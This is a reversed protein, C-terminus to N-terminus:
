FHKAYSKRKYPSDPADRQLMWCFDALMSPSWKGKYRKEMLAVDQHFREGAEDSVNGLNAPFFDMHSKLFHMKLSMRCGLAEYTRLLREVHDTYNDSRHNGLFQTCVSRFAKWAALQPATMTEEFNDDNLLERIQPGVFIGEKIKAESVQPFKQILYKFADTERGLAKVLQKMLGLKIHLPPLLVNEKDVLPVNSINNTGPNHFDRLPWDKRSYHEDRSRSDWLCLFCCFKTYGSQLGTLLAIVKFDACIAWKYQDYNICRLIQKLNQYTERMTVSYAVPVSPFTNGNHLLVAKISLKSADIFLRWEQSDFVIGFSDFLSSIDNCYCLDGNMSFLHTLHATRKRFFTVTADSDILNWGQLRSALLEGQFKTLKLDRVLDSLEEASILHPSSSTDTFDFSTDGDDCNQDDSNEPSSNPPSTPPAPVPLEPSHLIPRIASQLSPYPLRKRNRDSVGKVSFACFYCDSGHDRQERWIMPIAFPLGRGSKSWTYLGASCRVCSIHPAWTKEQDGVACGFYSKYLEKLRPTIARQYKKVTFEGCIYCFCNPDNVCGRSAMVNTHYQTPRRKQTPGPRVAVAASSRKDGNRWDHHREQGEYLRM